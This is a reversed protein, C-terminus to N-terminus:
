SFHNVTNKSSSTPLSLDAWTTCPQGSNYHLLSTAPKVFTRFADAGNRIAPAWGVREFVSWRCLSSRMKAREGALEFSGTMENTARGVHQVVMGVAGLNQDSRRELRPSHGSIVIGSAWSGAPGPLVDYLTQQMTLEVSFAVLAPVGEATLDM